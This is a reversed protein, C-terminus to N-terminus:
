EEKKTNIVVTTIDIKLAGIAVDTVRLLYQQEDFVLSIIDTPELYIYKLPLSLSLFGKEIRAAKIINYSFCEAESESMVIPLDLRSTEAYSEQDINKFCSARNYSISNIFGIEVKNLMSYEPIASSKLYGKESNKILDNSCIMHPLKSDRKIFKVINKEDAVIDFFYSCRLAGFVDWVSGHQKIVFGTLAENITGVDVSDISISAIQCLELLVSALNAAGFKNNVWHGRSWLRQDQWCNLYPWAPSPRADWTWLFMNEVIESGKWRELSAKIAKRQIAFDVNGNSHKPVGGDSCLPDYFVNPQNSAKDISPFGFETFWIKKSQPKWKTIQGNPNIHLNNWWYEINKWAYAPDLPQHAGNHDIYYDYGEGEDWGKLIDEESINSLKSSTLPFYADIGVIDIDDSAWLDDLHHWGGETHHYESWDAAYTVKVADGLIAKVKAALDILELVAPFRDGERVKNLGKFESGIVFADVKGKVLNAYHLIFNKYGFDKNFFARIEEPSGTLHGRWPKAPVDMFFMPYLMVKLNRRRIEDLYRLLSADNVTGGYNPNSAHDRSVLGVGHRSLGAVKWKESSDVGADQYEVKPEIKCMGLDMSSGFWCVVPAVWQLNSCINQLQNLSVISDALGLNNHCNIAENTLTINDDTKVVKYQIVTDYVFEGSGPIMVMDRVLDEVGIFQAKRVVEFNFKPVRNGFEELPLNEFVIYSLGRFAPTTKPGQAKMILPDPMQDESGNYFRFKYKSLDILEDNAWVRGMEMVEGKCIALAFSAYYTFSNDHYIVRPINTGPHKKVTENSHMIERLPLAWIMNGPLKGYGFVMPIPRGAAFSELYMNDLYKHQRYYEDPEIASKELYNGLQRGAFRGVTSLIGGGFAGGIAGGISSFIQGLM